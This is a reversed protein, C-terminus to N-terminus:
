KTESGLEEQTILRDYHVEFLYAPEQEGIRHVVEFVKPYKKVIHYMYRQITNITQKNYYAPNKRLSGMVIHTVHKDKLAQLLLDPDETDIRYIGFFKRGNAYLRAMNPKRVAVYAEEPLNDNVYEAMSLYNVWDDTYGLLRDGNINKRLTMLDVKDFSIIFSSLTAYFILGVLALSMVKVKALLRIQNLAYLMMVLMFPLFPVILRYQDWIKQLVVFTIGLMVAVYIATFTLYKNEKFAKIAGFVFVSYLRDRICM